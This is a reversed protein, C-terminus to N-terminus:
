TAMDGALDQPEGDAPVVRNRGAHKAAYLAADARALLQDLTEDGRRMAVGISTTFQISGAEHGVIRAEISTRLREAVVIAADLSTEPLLVAFEEGGLRGAIDTSRRQQRILTAVAVIVVDGAAHGFRDNIAKFHDIDLMVMVAPRDHRQALRLATEGLEYFARRNNLETMFDTRALKEIREKERRVEHALRHTRDFFYALTRMSLFVAVIYTIAVIAMVLHLRDGRLLFLAAIPMILALAGSRVMVPHAAYSVSHGGALVMLFLFVLGREALDDQPLLFLGGIGWWLDVVLVSLVFTREWRQVQSASPARKPYTGTLGVRVFTIVALGITWVLLRTRDVSNWLAAALLAGAAPSVFLPIASQLFVFRVREARIHDALATESDHEETPTDAMSEWNVM